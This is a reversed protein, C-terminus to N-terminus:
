YHIDICKNICCVHVYLSIVIMFNLSNQFSLIVSRLSYHSETKDPLHPALVHNTNSLIQKFLSDDASDIICWRCSILNQGDRAGPFTPQPPAFNKPEAKSCGARLTQTERLAKENKSDKIHTM